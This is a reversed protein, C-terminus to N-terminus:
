GHDVPEDTSTTRIGRTHMVLETRTIYTEALQYQLEELVIHENTNMVVNVVKGNRENSLYKLPVNIIQPKMSMKNYRELPPINWKSISNKINNCTTKYYTMGLIKKSRRRYDQVNIIEEHNTIPINFM